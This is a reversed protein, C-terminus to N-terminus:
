LVGRKSCGITVATTGMAGGRRRRFPELQINLQETIRELRLIHRAHRLRAQAVTTEPRRRRASVGKLPRRQLDSSKQLVHQRKHVIGRRGLGCIAHRLVVKPLVHQHSSVQMSKAHAQLKRRASRPACHLQWEAFSRARACPVTRARLSCPRSPVAKREAIAM